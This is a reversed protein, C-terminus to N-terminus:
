TSRLRRWRELAQGDVHDPVLLEPDVVRWAGAQTPLRLELPLATVVEATFEGLLGAYLRTVPNRAFAEDNWVISWPGDEALRVPSWPKLVAAVKAQDAPEAAVLLGGVTHLAPLGLAAAAWAGTFVVADTAQLGDLIDPALVGRIERVREQVTLTALRRLEDDVDAHRTVLRFRVDRGCAALVRDADDSRVPREGTEWKCLAHRTVGVARAVVQQTLGAEHRAQRLVAGLDM